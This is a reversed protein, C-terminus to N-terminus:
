VALAEPIVKLAQKGPETTSIYITLGIGFMIAGGSFIGVRKWFAASTLNGLLKGTAAATSVVGGATGSLTSSINQVVGGGPLGLDGIIRSVENGPGANITASADLPGKSLWNTLGIGKYFRSSWTSNIVTSAFVPAPANQKLASIIQPSAQLNQATAQIGQEVSAYPTVVGNRTLGLPNYVSSTWSGGSQEQHIWTKINNINNQTVPVKLATLLGAAWVQTTVNNSTVTPAM